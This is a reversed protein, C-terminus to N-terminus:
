TVSSPQDSCKGSNLSGGGLKGTFSGYGRGLQADQAPFFQVSKAKGSGGELTLVGVGGGGVGVGPTLLSQPM